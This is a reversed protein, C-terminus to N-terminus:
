KRPVPDVDGEVFNILKIELSDRIQELRDMLGNPLVIGASVLRRGERIAEEAIGISEKIREEEIFIINNNNPM